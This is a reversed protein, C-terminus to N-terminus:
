TQTSNLPVNPSRPIIQEGREMRRRPLGSPTGRSPEARPCKQDERKEEVLTEVTGYQNARQLMELVTTPPREVLSWFIRYPKIGIMFAQIVLSPHADPIARVEDIFRTLYQGLHEEEKQRMALLSAVTPKSQASSLFNGEFERVLQDFSHISSPLLRNYWGRAIGQLTTPFARCLIVRMLRPSRYSLQMARPPRDSEPSFHSLNDTSPTMPPQENQLLTARTQPLPNGFATLEATPRAVPHLPYNSSANESHSPGPQYAGSFGRSDGGPDEPETSTSNAWPRQTLESTQEQLVLDEGPHHTRPSTGGVILNLNNQLTFDRM